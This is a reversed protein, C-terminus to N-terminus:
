VIQYKLRIADTVVIAGTASTDFAYTQTGASPTVTAGGTSYSAGVGVYAKAQIATGASWTHNTAGQVPVGAVGLSVALNLTETIVSDLSSPTSERTHSTKDFTGATVACQAGSGAAPSWSGVGAVDNTPAIRSVFHPVKADAIATTSDYVTLQALLSGVSNTFGGTRYYGSSEASLSASGTTTASAPNNVWVEATWPNARVDYKLAIYHWNNLTLTFTTAQEVGNMYLAMEGSLANKCRVSIYKGGFNVEILPCLTAHAYWAPTGGDLGAKIAVAVTGNDTWGASIPTNITKFLSSSWSYKTGPFAPYTYTDAATSTPAQTGGGLPDYFTFGMELLKTQTEAGFAWSWVVAM